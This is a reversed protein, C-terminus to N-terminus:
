YHGHGYCPRGPQCDPCSEAIDRYDSRSVFGDLKKSNVTRLNNIATQILQANVGTARDLHVRLESIIESLEM